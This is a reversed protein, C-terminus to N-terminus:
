AAAQRLKWVVRFTFFRNPNAQLLGMLREAEAWGGSNSLKFPDTHYIGAINSGDDDSGLICGVPNSICKPWEPWVGSGWPACCAETPLGGADPNLCDAPVLVDEPITGCDIAGTGGCDEPTGCSSPPDVPKTVVDPPGCPYYIWDDGFQPACPDCDPANCAAPGGWPEVPPPPKPPEIPPPQPPEVPPPPPGV